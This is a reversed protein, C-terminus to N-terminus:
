DRRENGEGVLPMLRASQFVTHGRAGLVGFAGIQDEAMVRKDHEAKVLEPLIQGNWSVAFVRGDLVQVELIHEQREAPHPISCRSVGSVEVLPVGEPVSPRITRINRDIFFNARNLERSLEFTQFRFRPSGPGQWLRYGIFVGCMGNWPTQTVGVQLRYASRRTEGLSFLYTGGYHVRLSQDNEDWRSFFDPAPRMPWLREPQRRLLVAWKGIQGETPKKSPAVPPERPTTPREGPEPGQKSPTGEVVVPSLSPYFHWAALGFSLSLAALSLLAALRHATMRSRWRSWGSPVPAPLVPTPAPARPPAGAEWRTFQHVLEQLNAGAAFPALAEAAEGPTAFRGAPEKALLRDLVRGFPVPLDPRRSRIPPVPVQAHADMKKGPTDHEPGSFPPGGTLLKYLTCGLSYLDARIDVSHTDYWQEPAMYDATGLMLGTGTLEEGPGGHLLALGLDLVKVQGAPTLMLNSPKIDRHVVHHEHIYQLGVAAQRALESAEALPLPGCAAVLRGLDTGEILEMVLYHAGEAEGADLAKVISPHELRGVAEVERLFRAVAQPNAMRVPPLVKLAVDRKLRVHRARYVDGMGGRGIQNLIEYYGLRRPISPALPPAQGTASPTGAALPDDPGAERSPDGGADGTAPSGAALGPGSRPGAAEGARGAGVVRECLPCAALHSRIAESLDPALRGECFAM